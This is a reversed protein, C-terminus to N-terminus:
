EVKEKNQPTSELARGEENQVPAPKSKDFDKDPCGDCNESDPEDWYACGRCGMVERRESRGPRAPGQTHKVQVAPTLNFSNNSEYKMLTICNLKSM